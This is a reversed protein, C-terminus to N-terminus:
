GRRQRTSARCQARTADRFVQQRINVNDTLEQRDLDLDFALLVTGTSHDDFARFRLVVRKQLVTGHTVQRLRTRIHASQAKRLTIQAPDTKELFVETLEDFLADYDVDKPYKKSLLSKCRELKQKVRESVVGEVKWKKEFELKINTLSV